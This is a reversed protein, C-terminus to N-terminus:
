NNVEIQLRNFIVKIIRVYRVGYLRVCAGFRMIYQLEYVPLGNYGGVKHTYTYNLKNLSLNYLNITIYTKARRKAGLWYGLSDLCL